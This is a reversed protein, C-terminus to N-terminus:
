IGGSTVKVETGGESWSERLTQMNTVYTMERKGAKAGASGEAQFTKERSGAEGWSM